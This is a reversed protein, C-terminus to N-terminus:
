VAFYKAQPHHAIIASTSMEPVMEMTETLTVGIKEPQLLEFVTQQADLNPCAPYGFGYRSGRYEQVAYGAASAPKAAAFGMERRMEEHWYEALSDALEVGFAHLILYDHYENKEFLEKTAAALEDGVTAVFFPAVDGGEDATHFFDAICLFPSGGQRPFDFKLEGGEHEVYLHTNESRCRFYGYAVKPQLLGNNLSRAVLDDYIPQVTEAILQAYEEDSTKGKRYGWRGRFLAQVNVYDFIKAPDINTVHRVGTFPPEPLRNDRVVTVNKQGPSAKVRETDESWATSELTGAEFDRMATLGAFADACYIVKGTPYGPVCDEAVFKRTLAAGGLLIPQALGAETFQAMNEKMIIASKVLLGSLAIVDANLERSQKIIEEASVKIGINFVKYGNNSLIIDVLNKGIDHVDGAVTALLVKVSAGHDAHAMHPELLDVARRMVEAAQLVFPLLMEGRGFLEGVQRMAPILLDNIIATPRYRRLLIEVLDGLGERDGALVKETILQEPLKTTKDDESDEDEATKDSFHEILATLPDPTEDSTRHYILDLCMDRDAQDIRSLPIIKAADVIATDLGAGVAEHLYLSNLIKRSAPTLGFSINSLGLTTFVGPLNNKIAKIGELTEIGARRLTEDGSAITFTLPDFILDGPRLGYKGVALDHIERAIQLKEEATMAMGKESITLAIVAAGYKKALKCVRQLNAGGDELNISNIIARGPYIKLAAEIVEPTTSDIVVPLKVSEAFMGLLKTMDASEDRGAYAVCLDLAHAAGAAEQDMGVKLAGQFDEALLLERFKKSGNANAREGIMMPAPDQHVEVAQYGSALQPQWTVSRRAPTVGELADALARIHGPTTGCCGGVVSIGEVEVFHKMAVAYDEPSLQYCTKGDVVTPLGANPICSIRGPWNRSLYRIHSEMLKPGTACNLGLSLLGFPELTAVATAIDAGVLMTGATEITLSVMVPLAKGLQEFTEGAAIVATKVQLLDQCTEIILLDVGAEVLSRMQQRYSEGLDDVSIHGLSPLKTTPGISGAIYAKKGSAAIAKHANEVATLNLEEVRDALGYEALVINCAGFTNAEIVNSGVDLFSAHLAQIVEPASLNLWENCGEYNGWATPPITMEQLNTGCAGDFILIPEDHLSM